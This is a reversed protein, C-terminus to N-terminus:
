ESRKRIRYDVGQRMRGTDILPHNSRKHKITSPANPAFDGDTITKQVLGKIFVGLESLTDQISAGKEVIKKEALACASKIQSFNDNFSKAMFPRAPTTSSGYENSAAVVVLPTGDKYSGEGSYYGVAVELESLQKITEEFKLGEATRKGKLRHFFDSM